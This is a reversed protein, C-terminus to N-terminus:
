LLLPHVGDPTEDAYIEVAPGHGMFKRSTRPAVTVSGILPHAELMQLLEPKSHTPVDITPQPPRTKKEIIAVLQEDTLASLMAQQRQSAPVQIIAQAAKGFGRDLIAEAAKIRDSDKIGDCMVDELTDIAVGALERAREDISTDNKDM